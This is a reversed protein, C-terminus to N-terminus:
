GFVEKLQYTFGSFVKTKKMQHQYQCMRTATSSRTNTM